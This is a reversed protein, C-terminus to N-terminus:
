RWQFQPSALLLAAQQSLSGHLRERLPRLAPTDSPLCFIAELLAERSPRMGVLAPLDVWTGRIANACLALAFNWRALLTGKWAAEGQPYGDPLPWGYLPQGMKELHEQLPLNGDTFAQLARLSSVLYDLPRKFAPPAHLVEESLLLERLVAGMEGGTHLYAESLRRVVAEPAHGLFYVCLKRCLHRATAPHLALMELVREGDEMGGGAPLRRGLVRKEGDDHQAPDFRFAGRPRLFREEVTWGTFCRAVEQVDRQTYGGHVGLTHLELLERAYNENPVGRRNQANDLYLLMAPSRATAKLLDPFRGLAHPRLVDREYQPLYYACLGKHAYVNFHDRWFDVMREQLQYRSYVARLIAHQSLQRVVERVPLDGLEAPRAQFIEFSRLRWRVLPHEGAENPHLQQELYAVKGMERLRQLEAPTAGFTVRQLWRVDDPLAEYSPLRTVPPTWVRRWVPQCGTLLSAGALLALQM